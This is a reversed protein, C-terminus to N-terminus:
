SSTESKSEKTSGEVKQQEAPKQKPTDVEEIVKEGITKEDKINDHKTPEPEPEEKSKTEEAGKEETNKVMNESKVSEQEDQAKQAVMEKEKVDKRESKKGSEGEAELRRKQFELVQERRPFVKTEEFREVMTAGSYKRLQKTEQELQKRDSKSLESENQPRLIEDILTRTRVLAKLALFGVVSGDRYVSSSRGRTAVKSVKSHEMADILKSVHSRLQSIAQLRLQLRLTRTNALIDQSQTKAHPINDLGNLSSLELPQSALVDVLRLYDDLVNPDPLILHSEMIDLMENAIKFVNPNKRDRRCTSLAIRFTKGEVADVPLMQDRIVELSLRSSRGLRLLRLYEHFSHSDPQINYENNEQTLYQWYRKAPGIGQTMLRCASLIVTLVGNDLKAYSPLPTVKKASGTNALIVPDFLGEFTEEEEGELAEEQSESLRGTEQGEFPIDIDETQLSEAGKNRAYFHPARQKVENLAEESLASPHGQPADPPKTAFIPVGMTQNVLALVDYCDRESSGYVLLSSMASVLFHDMQLDGKKWQLVIDSWIRKGERVATAKRKLIDDIRSPHISDVDRQAIARIAQLIITYTKHDPAGAGEEPLSGAVEWLSDMDGHRSCVTLMANGHTINPHNISKYISLATEVPKFGRVRNSHSLGNLMITYTRDDPKRGRKKM